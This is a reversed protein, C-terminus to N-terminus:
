RDKLDNEKRLLVILEVGRVSWWTAVITILATKGARAAKKM